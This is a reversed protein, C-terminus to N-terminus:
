VRCCEGKLSWEQHFHNSFDQFGLKFLGGGVVERFKFSLVFQSTELIKSQLRCAYILLEERAGRGELGRPELQFFGGNQFHRIFHFSLFLIFNKEVQRSFIFKNYFIKLLNSIIFKNKM